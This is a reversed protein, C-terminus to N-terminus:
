NVEMLKPWFFVNLMIRIDETHVNRFTGKLESQWLPHNSWIRVSKIEKSNLFAANQLKCSLSCNLSTYNAQWRQSILSDNLYWNVISIWLGVTHNLTLVIKFSYVKSCLKPLIKLKLIERSNLHWKQMLLLPTPWITGRGPTWLHM